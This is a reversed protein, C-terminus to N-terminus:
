VLEGRRYQNPSVGIAKKFVTSFYHQTDYGLQESIDLISMDTSSLLEVAKKMRIDTLLQSFTVGLENKLTRSLHIPNANLSVSVLELTLGRVMYNEIIYLRARRILPSLRADKYVELKVQRYMDPIAEFGGLVPLFAHTVSLKLWQAISRTIENFVSRNIDGWVIVAILGASDRFIIHKWEALWEGVINEIAFLYLQRDKEKPLTRELASDSWRITGIWQPCVAPLQLFELQEIIETVSTNGNIWELCFRERLLPYNRKIQQSALVLHERERYEADLSNGVEELVKRLQLPNAPKLIYEDVDLRIAEQAYQFEDHGTIIILRCHPLVHRIHKMMTIGDMIPMNLDVLIIDVQHQEALELAEEGDEAEAVVDMSMSTWDVAMHIGERIIPEDDAILVKWIRSM